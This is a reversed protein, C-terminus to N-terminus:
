PHIDRRLATRVDDISAECRLPIVIKLALDDAALKKHLTVRAYVRRAFYIANIGVSAIGDGLTWGDYIYVIRDEPAPSGVVSAEVGYPGARFFYVSPPTLCGEVPVPRDVAEARPLLLGGGLNVPGGPADEVAAESADPLSVSRYIRTTLSLGLLLCLLALSGRTWGTL